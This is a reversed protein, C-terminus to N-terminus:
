SSCRLLMFLMLDAEFINPVGIGIKISRHPGFNLTPTISSPVYKFSPSVIFIVVSFM